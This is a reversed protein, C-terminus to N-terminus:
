INLDIIFLMLQNSFVRRVPRFVKISKAERKRGLMDVLALIMMGLTTLAWAIPM